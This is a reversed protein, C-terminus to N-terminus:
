EIMAVSRAAGVLLSEHAPTFAAATRSRMHLTTLTTGDVLMFWAVLHNDAQQEVFVPKGGDTYRTGPTSAIVADMTVPSRSLTTVSIVFQENTIGSGDATLAWGAPPTIHLNHLWPPAQPDNNAIAVPAAPSAGGGCAAMLLCLLCALAARSGTCTRTAIM